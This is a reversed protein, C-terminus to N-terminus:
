GSVITGGKIYEIHTNGDSDPYCSFTVEYKVADSGAYTIDSVTTVKCNPLVVRKAGDNKLVMDIVLSQTPLEDANVEVKAGTTLDGTVNDDGYITKLVELNTSELFAMKFTDPKETQIDLVTAGGWEKISTNSPSNSNVVGADSIFGLNKFADNLTASVSEPLTTGVPARFVAGGIKPKGANVNLSNNDSM